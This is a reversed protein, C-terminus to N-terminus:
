NAGLGCLWLGVFRLFPGLQNGMGSSELLYLIKIFLFYLKDICALYLSAKKKKPRRPLLDLRINLLGHKSLIFTLICMTLIVLLWYVKCIPCFLGNEAILVLTFKNCPTLSLINTNKLMNQNIVVLWVGHCGLQFLVLLFQNECCGLICPALFGLVMLCLLNIHPSQILKSYYPICQRVLPIPVGYFM